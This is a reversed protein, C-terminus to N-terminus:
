DVVGIITSTASQGNLTLVCSGTLGTTAPTFAAATTMGTPLTTTMLNQLNAVTCWEASAATKFYGTGGAGRAVRVAYNISSGSTVGAAVGQIAATKADASIDVFKPVAVAALIGLIVIVVVLEILTFGTVKRM